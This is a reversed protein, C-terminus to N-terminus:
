LKVGLMYKVFAADLKALDDGFASKFDQLREDPTSTELAGKKALIELYKVYEKQKFRLLYYNLAWAEAYAEPATKSNRFREDTQILATLSDAGRTPLSKRFTLLRLQNVAGVKKWGRSNKMDPTEFYVAMGESCWLPIDALRQQMGSNFALQHTAEHVITAVTREAEPRSLLQNVRAALGQKDGLGAGEVGTLDYMMVRNSTLSYYGIISDAAEGLETKAYESYSAKDQFVLAVLPTKPEELPFGRDQWHDYFAIYLREYLGGCWEAYARSTNYCILYHATHHVRFGKPLEALLQQELTERSLPHFERANSSREIIDQPEVAWLSYDPTLVLVGGDAAEVVLKGAITREAGNRKLVVQEEALVAGTLLWGCCLILSARYYSM